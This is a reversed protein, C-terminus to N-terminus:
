AAKGIFSTIIVYDFLDVVGSLDIDYARDNPNSSQYKGLALSLDALTVRGDKDIDSAKEYSYFVTKAEGNEIMAKVDASATITGNEIVAKVTDANILKVTTGDATVPKKAKFTFKAVVQKGAQPIVNRLGTLVRVRNDAPESAQDILIENSAFVSEAGVYELVDRDYEITTDFANANVIDNYSVTYVIEDDTDAVAVAPGAIEATVPMARVMVMTDYLYKQTTITDSNTNYKFMYANVKVETESVEMEVIVQEQKVDSGVGGENQAPNASDVDLFAYNPAIPDGPAVTYNIMSYWKLGGAHGGIMYLPANSPKNVSGDQNVTRDAKYGAADVFGRSYVHDHGQLVMDVDLEAFKPCWFKRADVVDSDVIHSAGTVLSKHFGVATWQGRAKADAVAARLFKEQEARATANSRAAELNLGIFTLPGYDYSYVIRNEVGGSSLTPANIHRNFTNNDHNGQIASILYNRFMKEGGTPYAGNNYFIQEWQAESNATDTIDGALYVFDPNMNAVEDLTAGLAKANTANSVQTDALFIFRIPDDSGKEPATKFAGEFLVENGVKYIYETNADLGTVPIKHIYKGGQESGGVSAEGAFALATGEGDAREIVIKTDDAAVTTYTVNVADSPDNGMHVNVQKPTKNIDTPAAPAEYVAELSMGWYIDSSGADRNHVSVAISNKGETLYQKYANLDIIANARAETPEWVGPADVDHGDGTAPMNLRAVERGNLYMVFGDDVAVKATLATIAAINEAVFDKRLYYTIYAASSSPGNDGKTMLTGGADIRGFTPSNDSGPYGLPSPGSKWASDDYDKSRFDTAADGFRDANTDDYKWVAHNAILTVPTEDAAFAGHPVTFAFLSLVLAAIIAMSMRKRTKLTFTKTM